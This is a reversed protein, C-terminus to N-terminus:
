PGQGSSMLVFDNSINDDIEKMLKKKIMLPGPSVPSQTKNDHPLQSKVEINKLNLVEIKRRLPLSPKSEAPIKVNEDSNKRIILLPSDASEPALEETKLFQKSPEVNSKM